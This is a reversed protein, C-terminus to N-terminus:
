IYRDSLMSTVLPDSLTRSHGGRKPFIKSISQFDAICFFYKSVSRPFGPNKLFSGGKLIRIVGMSLLDGIAGNSYGIVGWMQSKNIYIVIKLIKGLTGGTASFCPSDSESRFFSAL